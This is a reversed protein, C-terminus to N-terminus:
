NRNYNSSIRWKQERAKRVQIYLCIDYIPYFLDSGALVLMDLIHSPRLNHELQGKGQDARALPQQAGRPWTPTCSLPCVEHCVPLSMWGQVYISQSGAAEGSKKSLKTKTRQVFTWLLSLNWSSWMLAICHWHTISRLKITELSSIVWPTITPISQGM